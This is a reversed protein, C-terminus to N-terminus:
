VKVIAATLKVLESEALQLDIRALPYAGKAGALSGEHPAAGNRVCVTRNYHRTTFSLARLHEDSVPPAEMGEPAVILAISAESGAGGTHPAFEQERIHSAHGRKALLAAVAEFLPRLVGARLRAFDELFRREDAGAEDKRAQAARRAADYQDLLAGLQKELTGTMGPPPTQTM